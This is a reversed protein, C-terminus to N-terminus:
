KWDIKSISGDGTIQQSSGSQPGIIWLNGEYLVGLRYSTNQSGPEWVVQQPDLGTRGEEPFIIVRNSGDRDMVILRYRSTESQNPFIAQLYAILNWQGTEYPYPVPYAFMGSQSVLTVSLDAEPILAFLDFIPSTEDTSSGDITVHNTTYLVRHDSSWNIGPIWAWDSRTQLPLINILPIINGEALNVLGVSDPRAYALRKGDSSWAYKTGWWGYIGGSNVPIIESIQLITGDEDFAVKYLDNNAQWGPSTPRPEVTSYSIL